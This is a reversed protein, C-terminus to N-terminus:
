ALGELEASNAMWIMPDMARLRNSMADASNGRNDAGADSETFIHPNNPTQQQTQIHGSTFSFGLADLCNDIRSNDQWGDELTASVRFKIYGTAIRCLVQFLRHLKSAPGSISPASQISTIFAQLHALDAEDQTEIVHCFMVIFPVFPAFLLTRLM